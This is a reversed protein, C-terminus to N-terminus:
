ATAIPQTRHGHATITSGDSRNHIRLSHNLGNSQVPGGARHSGTAAEGHLECWGIGDLDRWAESPLTRRFLTLSNNIRRQKSARPLRRRSSAHLLLSPARECTLCGSRYLGCDRPVCASAICDLRTARRDLIKCCVSRQQNCTVMAYSLLERCCLETSGGRNEPIVRTLRGWDPPDSRM